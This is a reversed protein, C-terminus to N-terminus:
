AAPQERKGKAKKRKVEKRSRGPEDRDLDIAQTYVGVISKEVTFATTPQAPLDWDPGAVSIHQLGDGGSTVPIIDAVAAVRYWRCVNRGAADAGCLAIWANEKLSPWPTALVLDGGGYTVNSSPQNVNSTMEGSVFDRRNCVVASVTYHTKELAQSGSSSLLGESQSPTVTLFWSYTGQFQIAGNAVVPQPRMTTTLPPSMDEPNVFQLDDPCLFVSQALQLTTLIPLNYRPLVGGLMGSNGNLVGLPDIAFAGPGPPSSWGAYPSFDLM